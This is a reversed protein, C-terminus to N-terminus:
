GGPLNQESYVIEEPPQALRFYLRDVGLFTIAFSCLAALVAWLSGKQVILPNLLLYVALAVLCSNVIIILVTWMYTGSGRNPKPLTRASLQVVNWLVYNNDLFYTRIKNIIRFHEIQARRCRALIAVIVTGLLAILLFLCALVSDSLLQKQEGKVVITLGAGGVGAFILYFSTLRNRLEDIHYTLRAALDYEKCLFEQQPTMDANSM